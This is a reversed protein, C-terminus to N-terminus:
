RLDLSETSEPTLGGTSGDEDCGNCGLRSCLRDLSILSLLRSPDEPNVLNRVVGVTLMGITATMDRLPQIDNQEVEPIDGLSDVLLGMCTKGQTRIVVIHNSSTREESNPILGHLRMVTIIKGQYSKFGAVLEGNSGTPPVLGDDNIAEVVDSAMVGLWHGGIYFTAIEVSNTGGSRRMRADRAHSRKVAGSGSRIDGLPFACVASIDNLYGDSTKYERYGASMAAGVAFHHGDIAIIRSHGKGSALGSVGADHGFHKGVEFRKDTSAIIKGDRRAFLAFADKVVNGTDDRPMADNLMAEFQLAADFVIGVGGVTSNGDPHRVAAAYLYTPRNDYLPTPVFDSVAYGQSTLILLSRGVWEENLLRGVLERYEPKSVAIVKGRADFLILNEYVTYLNNIYVLVEACLAADSPNIVSQALVRRFTANLAWWRCDNAREYLNRDMVDIAFSARSLSNQLITAVVTQHLNSISQEFVSQTKRGTNSIEWLLIKSFNANDRKNDVQRVSGNWVSCNLDQQIKEAQRPINRLEESFFDPHQMVADMVTADINSLLTSDDRDFAFEVPLLGVGIWGPGMYGQYGHTQCSVALYQRGAFRVLEGTASLALVPLQAGVPLQIASSSAIVVGEPTVCSLVTWDDPQVLKSFIGRMENDLRFVLALVGAAEGGKDKVRCAYVLRQQGPRLFDAEGYYEVYPSATAMAETILPCQSMQAPTDKLRARINGSQDFLVIDSYVSYKAVYEKFREQMASPDADPDALFDGVDDDAALFGIDATREFLNRVLIDIANQTKARLDARTKNSTELALHDLLAGTLRAFAERTGNMGGATGSLQGLLTLTDWSAQLQGLEERYEEVGRMYRVLKGLSSDIADNKNLSM